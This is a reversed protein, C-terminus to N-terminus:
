QFDSASRVGIQTTTNFISVYGTLTTASTNVTIGSVTRVFVSLNGTADTVTYTTGTGNTTGAVISTIGTIKVQTSAITNQNTKIYLITYVPITPLTVTGTQTVNAAAVGSLELDGMYPAFTGGGANITLVTGLAYTPSGVATFLIIGAGSADEIRYNSSAENTSNSIVKGTITTGTPVTVSTGTYLARFQALTIATGGGGGGGGCRTATFQVDTTDRIILQKTTNYPAYIGLITGHGQPTSVGAFNAYGSSRVDIDQTTACGTNIYRDLSNKYYSTDGYSQGADASRFEYNNLQILRGIYPNLWGQSSAVTLNASTVVHPVVPNNLSGGIVYNGILSAPIAEASGVGGITAKYAIFPTNHYDSIVLGNCKIFVKRGVPYSGYLSNADLNIQLGGTSDEIYIEKYLNGSRDDAVVTGSIIIDSNIMDISGSSVHMAKLSALTTNAVIAPDVSAPPTDFQKKCSTLSIAMVLVMATIAASFKQFKNM